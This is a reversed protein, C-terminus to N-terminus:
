IGKYVCSEVIRIGGVAIHSGLAFGGQPGAGGAAIGSLIVYEGVLQGGEKEFLLLVDEGQKFAMQGSTAYLIEIEIQYAGLVPYVKFQICHM